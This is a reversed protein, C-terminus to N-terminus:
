GASVQPFPRSRAILQKYWLLQVENPFDKYAFRHIAGLICGERAYFRCAPVNINQTEVKLQSCNKKLAWQESAQFLASGIGHRRFEPQVRIDWLVALDTRGELM